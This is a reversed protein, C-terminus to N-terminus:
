CLSASSGGVQQATNVIAGAANADADAVGATALSAGVSVILGIGV